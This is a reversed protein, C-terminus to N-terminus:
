DDRRDVSPGRASLEQSAARLLSTRGPDVVHVAELIDRVYTAASVACM